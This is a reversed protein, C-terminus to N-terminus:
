KDWGMKEKTAKIIKERNAIQESTPRPEPLRPSASRYEGDKFIGMIQSTNVMEDNIKVFKPHNPTALIEMLNKARVEELYFSNDKDVLKIIYRM